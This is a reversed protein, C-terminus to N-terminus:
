FEYWRLPIISFRKESIRDTINSPIKCLIVPRCCCCCCCETVIIKMAFGVTITKRKKKIEIFQGVNKKRNQESKEWQTTNNILRPFYLPCVSIECTRLWQTVNLKTVEHPLLKFSMFGVAKISQILLSFFFLFLVSVIAISQIFFLAWKLHTYTRKRLCLGRPLLITFSRNLRELSVSLHNQNDVKWMKRPENVTEKRKDDWRGM